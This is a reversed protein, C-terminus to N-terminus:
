ATPLPTTNLVAQARHRARAVRTRVATSTVGLVEAAETSNLGEWAVLLFAERESPTLSALALRLSDRASRADLREDVAQWDVGVDADLMVSPRQRRLHARVINGGIGYLWPLASGSHHPRFRERAEIAAVFVDGLLDEAAGPGVRRALFRFVATAHREYLLGLIEPRARSRALLEDDTPENMEM